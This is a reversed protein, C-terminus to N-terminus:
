NVNSSGQPCQNKHATDQDAALCDFDVAFGVFSYQLMHWANYANLLCLGLAFKTQGRGLEGIDSYVLDVDLTM